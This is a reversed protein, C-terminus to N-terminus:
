LAVLSADKVDGTLDTPRCSLFFMFIFFAFNSFGMVAASRIIQAEPMFFTGGPM